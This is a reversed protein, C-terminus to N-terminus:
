LTPYMLSLEMDAVTDMNNEIEMWAKVREIVPATLRHKHLFEFKKFDSLLMRGLDEGYLAMCRESYCRRRGNRWEGLLQKAESPSYYGVSGDVIASILWEEDYQEFYRNVEDESM